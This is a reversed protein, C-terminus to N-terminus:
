PSIEQQGQRLTLSCVCQRCIADRHTDLGRRWRIAAPSNLIAELDGAQYLNGLPPQFFCPRVTGDTEIVSSVWPANCNLPAFDGSGLLARYYQLLRRRLKAPSESIFDNSFDEACDRELAAIEAELLPLDDPHLSIDEIKQEDWGDARNFADTAIDVALFSIRDVGLDHAAAVTRRLHRYNARHVTSRASLNIEPAVERLAAIGRAMKAYARPINRIQNHIAEPGDLSVVVDDVFEALLAADRELLLGTSHISIGIGADRLLTCIGRLQSHLLPEGGSLLVREVGLKRWQPLWTRFDDESLEDKTTIKWIDCMACRCNCRNHPYLVLIPLRTIPDLRPLPPAETRLGSRSTDPVPNPALQTM